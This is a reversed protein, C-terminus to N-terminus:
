TFTGTAARTFNNNTTIAPMVGGVELVDIGWLSIRLRCVEWYNLHHSLNFVKQYHALQEPNLGLPLPSSLQM